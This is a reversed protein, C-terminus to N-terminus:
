KGTCARIWSQRQSEDEKPFSHCYTSRPNTCNAVVCITSFGQIASTMVPSSSEIKVGDTKGYTKNPTTVSVPQGYGTNRVKYPVTKSGQFPGSKTWPILPCPVNLSPYAEPRLVLDDNYSEPTFHSQCLKINKIPGTM